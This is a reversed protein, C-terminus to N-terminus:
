LMVVYFVEPKNPKVGFICEPPKQNVKSKQGGELVKVM